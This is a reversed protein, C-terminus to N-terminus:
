YCDYGCVSCSLFATEFFARLFLMDCTYRVTGGGSAIQARIVRSHVTCAGIRNFEFMTKVFGAHYALM